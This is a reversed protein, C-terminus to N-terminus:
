CSRLLQEIVDTARWLVIHEANFQARAQGDTCSKHAWVGASRQVTGQLAAFAVWAKSLAMPENPPM